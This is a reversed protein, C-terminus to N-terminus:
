EKIWTFANRIYDPTAIQEARTNLLEFACDAKNKLMYDQVSLSRRKQVFIQDCITQNDQYVSVEFTYRDNCNEYFVNILDDTYESYRELCNSQFDHDNDRIVATKIKLLRAIDLYRKFSTGDVSIIHVGDEYPKKSTVNIYLAEMLIFEADGEVLIVKQSLIFELINHDPAKMFFKATDEPLANLGISRTDNSNLLIAKRLDLRSCILSSHTAIFLQKSESEDIKAILKKMNVHSLHNEPEELLVADLSGAKNKLAFATKIFCQNGKGKRDIDIGGETITLDTELNAKTSTRISFQYTSQKDNMEKLVTNKFNEKHKRYENHHKYKETEEVSSNYLAKIYSRTAYENNIQTNDLLIHSLYKRFGSYNEGSFTKFSISYFEFPFITNNQALIDKIHKSYDELPSCVLRLGDYSAGESNVKGNLDENSQDTLYLEIYLVPLDAYGRRGSLFNDIAAVNFLSDLGLTEVKSRSGSLVLDIATLISSKGAENDGILVNLQPNFQTEFAEFRKFNQLKIKTILKM